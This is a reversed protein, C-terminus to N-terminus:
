ALVQTLAEVPPGNLGASSVRNRGSHKADYLADDAAKLLLSCDEGNTPRAVAVGISVTV